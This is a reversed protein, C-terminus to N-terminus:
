QRAKRRNERNELALLSVGSRMVVRAVELRTVRHDEAIAGLRYGWRWKRLIARQRNGHLRNADSM